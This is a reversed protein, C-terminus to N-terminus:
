WQSSQGQRRVLGTCAGKRFSFSFFLSLFPVIMIIGGLWQFPLTHEGKAKSELLGWGLGIQVCGATGQTGEQLLPRPLMRRVPWSTGYDRPCGFSSVTEPLHCELILIAVFERHWQECKYKMIFMFLYFGVQLHNSRTHAEPLLCVAWRVCFAVM